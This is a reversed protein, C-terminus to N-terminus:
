RGRLRPPPAARRAAVAKGGWALVYQAGSLVVTTATAVLVADWWAGGNILDAGIALAGALVGFELATNLKSLATPAIEVPGVLYHYALGGGVILADRTVVALAFWWPLQLQVALLLTVTLMTLKDAVPDAIAGFRTRLNWRRAIAGDAADSLASIVLLLLAGDYERRLLRLALVPVLLVRMITIANPVNLM